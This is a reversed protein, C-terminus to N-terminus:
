DRNVLRTVREPSPRRAPVAGSSRSGVVELSIQTCSETAAYLWRVCLVSIRAIVSREFARGQLPHLDDRRPRACEVAAAAVPVQPAAVLRLAPPKCERDIWYTFNMDPSTARRWTSRSRTIAMAHRNRPQDCRIAAATAAQPQGSSGQHGNGQSTGGQRHGVEGCQHPGYGRRRLQPLRQQAYRVSALLPPPGPQEGVVADVHPQQRPQGSVGGFQVVV